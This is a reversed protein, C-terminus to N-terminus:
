LLVGQASFTLLVAHVVLTRAPTGSLPEAPLALTQPYELGRFRACLHQTIEPTLVLRAGDLVVPGTQVAFWWQNLDDIAGQVPELSDLMLAHLQPLDAPALYFHAASPVYYVRGKV